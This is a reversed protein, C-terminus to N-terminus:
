RSILTQIAKLDSLNNINQFFYEQLWNGHRNTGKEGSNSAQFMLNQSFTLTRPSNESKRSRSKRNKTQKDRIQM